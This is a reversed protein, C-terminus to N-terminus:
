KTADEQCLGDSVCGTIMWSGDEFFRFQAEYGHIRLMRAFRRGEQKITREQAYGWYEASAAGATFTALAALSILIIHLRKM